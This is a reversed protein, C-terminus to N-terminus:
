EGGAKGAGVLMYAVGMPAPGPDDDRFNFQDRGRRQGAAVLEFAVVRQSRTDYVVKGHLQCSYARQSQELKAFGSLRMTQRDPQEDICQTHLESAKLADKRWEGCQGRVADKLTTLALRELIAAPIAQKEKSTTVFSRAEEPTLEAWNLNFACRQTETRGPKLDDGRPLDRVAVELKIGNASKGLTYDLPTQPVAKAQYGRTKALQQWRRWGEEIAHGARERSACAFCGSLYDGEASMCYVGQVTPGGPIVGAPANRKFTQFLSTSARNPLWDDKFHPPPGLFFAEDAVCVFRRALEQIV